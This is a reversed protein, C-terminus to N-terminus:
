GKGLNRRQQLVCYDSYMSIWCLPVLFIVIIRKYMLDLYLTRLYIQISKFHLHARKRKTYSNKKNLLYFSSVMFSAHSLIIAPHQLMQQNLDIRHQSLAGLHSESECLDIKIFRVRWDGQSKSLKLSSTGHAWGHSNRQKRVFVVEKIPREFSFLYKSSIKWIVRDMRSETRGSQSM